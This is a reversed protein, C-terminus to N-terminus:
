TVQQVEVPTMDWKWPFSNQAHSQSAFILGIVTFAVRLIGM